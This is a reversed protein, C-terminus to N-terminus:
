VQTMPPLLHWVRGQARSGSPAICGRRLAFTRICFNRQRREAQWARTPTTLLEGFPLFALTQSNPPDGCIVRASRLSDRVPSCLGTEGKAGVRGQCQRARRVDGAATGEQVSARVHDPDEPTPSGTARETVRLTAPRNGSSTRIRYEVGQM